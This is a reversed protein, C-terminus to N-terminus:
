AAATGPPHPAGEGGIDGTPRPALLQKTYSHRAPSLLDGSAFRDVIEGHRMVAIEDSLWRVMDVDHGIFLMAFGRRAQLRKLLAAVQVQITMDLASVVEDSIV